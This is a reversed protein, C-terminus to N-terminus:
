TELALYSIQGFMIYGIIIGNDILPATAEVLGAPCHYIELESNKRCREFIHLERVACQKESIEHDHMLRCFSCRDAPWALVERYASDFIVIRIGTLIYFDQMLELLSTKNLNLTATQM